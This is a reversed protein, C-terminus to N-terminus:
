GAQAQMRAQARIFDEVAPLLDGDGRVHHATIGLARASAVNDARDDAFFTREAPHGYAALVGRFVAPDPKRAGYGSSTRLHEV